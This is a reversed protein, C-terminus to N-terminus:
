TYMRVFSVCLSYTSDSLRIHTSRLASHDSARSEESRESHCLGSEETAKVLVLVCM